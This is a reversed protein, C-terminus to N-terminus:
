EYFTRHDTPAPLTPLAARPDDVPPPVDPGRQVLGAAVVLSGLLVLAFVFRPSLLM